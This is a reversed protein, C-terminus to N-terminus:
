GNKALLMRLEGVPIPPERRHAMAHCNPCLPILDNVADIQYAGGRGAIPLVHHIHIFGRGVEGYVSEFDFGCAACAFGHHLVCSERAAKSREYKTLVLESAEGEVLQSRLPKSTPAYRGTERFSFEGNTTELEVSWIGYEGIHLSSVPPGGDILRTTYGEGGDRNPMIEAMERSRAHFYWGPWEGIQGMWSEGATYCQEAIEEAQLRTPIRIDIEFSKESVGAPPQLYVYNKTRKFLTWGRRPLIVSLTLAASFRLVEDGYKKPARGSPEFTLRVEPWESENYSMFERIFRVSL